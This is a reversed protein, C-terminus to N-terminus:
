SGRRRTRSTYIKGAREMSALRAEDDAVRRPSKMYALHEALKADSEAAAKAAPSRWGFAVVAAAIAGIVAAAVTDLARSAGAGALIAVLAILVGYAGDRVRLSFNAVLATSLRDRAARLRRRM